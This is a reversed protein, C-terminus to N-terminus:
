AVLDRPPRGAFFADLNEVVRMGMAVRTEVTASGLHPYLVVNELAMLRESVEPEGEYVDLGAAFIRGEELADALAEADVVAGRATNVLVASPKMRALEARGILHYTGPGGPVHLSVFDAEELVEELSARWSAGLEAEAEPAARVLDTYVVRMGFGLHARRATARAIRGFGALGLVKGTVQAGMLQTPTWGTWAGARLLREGEGGRRAAALLLLVAIDATAETLVEPTNTVVVGKAKAAALDIHEFGVGFNGLIKAKETAAIVEATIKDTVTPCVADFGRLADALAAASMPADTKNIALDYRTALEKEVAEPWRRTLLVTPRTM